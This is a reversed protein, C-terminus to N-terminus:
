QSLPPHSACIAGSLKHQENQDKYIHKSRQKRIKNTNQDRYKDNSRQIQTEYFLSFYSLFVAPLFRNCSKCVDKIILIFTNVKGNGIYFM